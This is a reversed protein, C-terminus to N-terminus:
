RGNPISKECRRVTKRAAGPTTTPRTKLATRQWRAAVDAVRPATPATWLTGPSRLIFCKSRVPSLQVPAICTRNGNASGCVFPKRAAPCCAAARARSWLFFAARSAWKGAANASSKDCLKAQLGVTVGPRYPSRVGFSSVAEVNETAGSDRGSKCIKRFDYM